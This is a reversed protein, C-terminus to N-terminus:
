TFSLALACRPRAPRMRQRIARRRQRATPAPHPASGFETEGDETLLVTKM